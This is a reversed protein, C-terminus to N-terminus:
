VDRVRCRLDQTHCSLGLAALYTFLYKFFIFHWKEFFLFFLLDLSGM